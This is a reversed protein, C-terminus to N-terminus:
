HLRFVIAGSLAVARNAGSPPFPAARSLAEAAAADFSANGTSSVSKSILEGAPGIVIHYPVRDSAGNAMAARPYSSAAARAIRAYVLNAYNSAIAGSPPAGGAAPAPSADSRPVAAIPKHELKKEVKKVEVKKPPVPKPPEVPAVPEPEVALPPPPEQMAEPPPTEEAVPPPPPEVAQPAPAPPEASPPMELVLELPQEEIVDQPNVKYTVIVALLLAYALLAAGAALLSPKTDKDLLLGQVGGVSFDSHAPEQFDFDATAVAITM